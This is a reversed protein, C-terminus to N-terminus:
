ARGIEKIAAILGKLEWNRFASQAYVVGKTFHYHNADLYEQAAKETLFAVGDYGGQAPLLDIDYTWHADDLYQCDCNDDSLPPLKDFDQDTEELIQKCHGCYHEEAGEYDLRDMHDGCGDRREVKIEEYIRFIPTDTHRNDQTELEQATRKLFAFTEDSLNAVKM